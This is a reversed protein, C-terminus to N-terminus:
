KCYAAEVKNAGPTTPILSHQYVTDYFFKKQFDQMM